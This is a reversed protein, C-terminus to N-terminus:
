VRVEATETDGALPRARVLVSELYDTLFEEVQEAARGTYRAPDLEAKLAGSPVQRFTPDASLRELLDNAGGRSVADAVALSHQRIVEHL